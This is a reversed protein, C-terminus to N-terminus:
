AQPKFDKPGSSIFLEWMSAFTGAITGQSGAGRAHFCTNHTLAAADVATVHLTLFYHQEGTHSYCLSHDTVAKQFTLGSSGMSNFTQLLDLIDATEGEKTNRCLNVPLTIVANNGEVRASFKRDFFSEVWAAIREESRTPYHERSVFDTMAYDFLKKLDEPSENLTEDSLAQTSEVEDSQAQTTIPIIM